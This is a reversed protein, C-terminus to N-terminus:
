FDKDDFFFTFFNREDQEDIWEEDDYDDDDDDDTSGIEHYSSIYSVTRLIASFDIVSWYMM